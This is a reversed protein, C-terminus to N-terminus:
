SRPADEDDRSAKVAEQAIEIVGKVFKLAERVREHSNEISTCELARELDVRANDAVLTVQGALGKTTIM